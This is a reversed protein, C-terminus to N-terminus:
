RAGCEQKQRHKKNGRERLIDGGHGRRGRIRGEIRVDGDLASSGLRRRGIGSGGDLYVDFQDINEGSDGVGVTGRVSTKLLVVEANEFIADLLV